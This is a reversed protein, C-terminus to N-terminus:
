RVGDPRSSPLLPPSPNEFEDNMTSQKAETPTLLALFLIDAQIAEPLTRIAQEAL